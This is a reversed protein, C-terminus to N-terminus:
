EPRSTRRLRRPSRAAATLAPKKKADIITKCAGALLDRMADRSVRSLRVLVVPFTDYHPKLYYTEPEEAIMAERQEFTTWLVLTGPEASKNSAICAVPRGALKLAPSGYMTSEEVGPMRLGISRVTAFTM